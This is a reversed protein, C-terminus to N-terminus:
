LGLSGGMSEVVKSNSMSMITSKHRSGSGGLGECMRGHLTLSRRKRLGFRLGLILRLGQPQKTIVWNHIGHKRRHVLILEFCRNDRRGIERKSDAMRWWVVRDRGTM